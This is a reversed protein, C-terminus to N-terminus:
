QSQSANYDELVQWAIEQLERSNEVEVQWAPSRSVYAKAEGLTLVEATTLAYLTEGISLGQRRPEALIKERVSDDAGRWRANIIQLGIDTKKM